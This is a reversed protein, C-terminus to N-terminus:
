GPGDYRFGIKVGVQVHAIKGDEVHGRTDTVEFWDVHRLRTSATEVANRIAEDVSTRSTGYLETVSYVHDTM